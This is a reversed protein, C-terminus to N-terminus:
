DPLYFFIYNDKSTRGSCTDASHRCFTISTNTVKTAIMASAPGIFPYGPKFNKPISNARTKWGKQILCSKLNGLLPIAGKKDVGVCKDFDQGGAKLCQSVFNPGDVGDYHYYESNYDKCYKRAYSVADEPNYSLSLGILFFLILSKM